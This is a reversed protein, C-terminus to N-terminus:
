KIFYIELRSQLGHSYLEVRLEVEYPRELDQKQPCRVRRPTKYALDM